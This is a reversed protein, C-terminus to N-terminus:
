RAAKAMASLRLTTVKSRPIFRNGPRSMTTGYNLSNWTIDPMIGLAPRCTSRSSTIRMWGWEAFCDLSPGGEDRWIKEYSAAQRAQPTHFYRLIEVVQGSVEYDVV